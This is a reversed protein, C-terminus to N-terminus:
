YNEELYPYFNQENTITLREVLWDEIVDRVDGIMEIDWNIDKETPNITKILDFIANDVFDQRKIQESTLEM